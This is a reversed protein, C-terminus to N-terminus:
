ATSRPPPDFIARSHVIGHMKQCGRKQAEKMLSAPTGAARRFKRRFEHVLNLWSEGSMQLRELIPALEQPIEGSKDTRVQRGTWDLLELYDSFRMPLCGTNSARCTPPPQETTNSLEFPSLWEARAPATSEPATEQSAISEGAPEAAGSQVGESANLEPALAESNTADSCAADTQCLAQIREFVSTFRSTEPTQAIGARIPNLDVYALCAALAPEDLIPQCRYRGEFFRGSCKDERNAQRAIPEVLFRMFWSLSSLRARVQALRDADATIMTLESDTPEAPHGQDDRRKPFVNWWRRAAEDDSWGAIVDPRNRVVVHIHNSMISFGLVDVAFQRALFELREQIWEKRHDFCKGSVNDTGCLFARRVCRNICHYVGVETPDFVFKRPIRPM